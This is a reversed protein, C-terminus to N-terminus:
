CSRGWIQGRELRLLLDLKEPTSISHQDGKEYRITLDMTHSCTVHQLVSRNCMVCELLTQLNM